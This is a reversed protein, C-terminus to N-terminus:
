GYNRMVIYLHEVSIADELDGIYLGTDRNFRSFKDNPPIMPMFNM